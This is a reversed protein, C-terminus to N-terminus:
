PGKPGKYAMKPSKNATKLIPSNPNLESSYPNARSVEGVGSGTMNLNKIQWNLDRQRKKHGNATKLNPLKSTPNLKSWYPNAKLGEGVGFGSM